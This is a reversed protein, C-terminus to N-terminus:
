EHAKRPSHNDAPPGPRVPVSIRVQSDEARGFQCELTYDAGYTKTLRDRTTALGIHAGAAAAAPEDVADNRVTIHLRGDLNRITIVIWGGAMRRSIGHKVANEVLPQLLLSPVAVSLCSEEVEYRVQLRDGFRVKEIELYSQTFDLERALSVQQERTNDILRRLLASLQALTEIAREDQKERVLMAVANLSNFLFHPQLQQKLAHMQADLLQTNLEAHAVEAARQRDYLEHMHRVGIILWYILIDVFNRGNFNLVLSNFFGMSGRDSGQTLESLGVRWVYNAFMALISLSLHAALALWRREGQLPIALYLRRVLPTVLAWLAVRLFQGYAVDGLSIGLGRPAVTLYLQVTLVLWVTLWILGLLLRTNWNTKM